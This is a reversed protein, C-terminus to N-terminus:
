RSLWFYLMIVVFYLATLASQFGFMLLSKITTSVWGEKYVVRTAIFQYVVALAFLLLPSIKFAIAPVCLLWTASWIHLTFVLHEILFRKQKWYLLALLLANGPVLLIYITALNDQFFKSADMTADLYRIAEATKAQAKLQEFQRNQEASYESGWFAFVLFFLFSTFFYLKFPTVYRVRRGALYENTLQGPKLLLLNISRFIKADLKFVEEWADALLSRLSAATPTNEQGCDPCFASDIPKGCNLCSSPLDAVTSM